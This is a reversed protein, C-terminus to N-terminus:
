IIILCKLGIHALKMIIIIKCISFARTPSWKVSAMPATPIGPRVASNPMLCLPWTTGPVLWVITTLPAAPAQPDSAPWTCALKCSWYHDFTLPWHVKCSVSGCHMFVCCNGPIMILSLIFQIPWVKLPFFHLLFCFFHKFFKALTCIKDKFLLKFIAADFTDFYLMFKLYILTLHVNWSSFSTHYIYNETKTVNSLKM